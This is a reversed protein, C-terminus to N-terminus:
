FTLTLSLRHIDKLIGMNAFSYDLNAARDGLLGFHTGAGLTLGGLDANFKYGGRLFFMQNFAYELGWNYQELQNNPHIMDVSTLIRNQSTNILDLSLGVRFNIPLSYTEFTKPKNVDASKPDSYDIYSGDFRVDPGFHLISMGINLGHYGTHYITGMDLAWSNYGYSFYKEHVLKVTMGVALRDTLFRAYTLGLAYNSIGFKQGTGEPQLVTTIEMDDTMLYITSISFVGLTGVKVACAAGGIAIDAPWRTYTTYLNRNNVEALGAPNWFVSGADNTVATYAEGMATSRAGLGIELFQAVATGVPAFDQAQIPAVSLVAWIATLYFIKKTM